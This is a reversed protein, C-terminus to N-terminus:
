LIEKGEPVPRTTIEAGFYLGLVGDRCVARFGAVEVDKEPRHLAALAVMTLLKAADEPRTCGGTLQNSKEALEALDLGAVIEAVLLVNEPKHYTDAM